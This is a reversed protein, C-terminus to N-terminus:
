GDLVTDYLYRLTRVPNRDQMLADMQQQDIRETLAELKRTLHFTANFTEVTDIEKSMIDYSYWDDTYGVEKLFYFFLFLFQILNIRGGRFSGRVM